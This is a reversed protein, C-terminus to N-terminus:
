ATKEIYKFYQGWLKGILSIESGEINEGLNLYQEVVEWDLALKSFYITDQYTWADAGETITYECSVFKYAGLKIDINASVLGNVEASAPTYAIDFVMDQAETTVTASDIVTCTTNGEADLGLFFDTNEELLLDTWGTLTTVTVKTGAANKYPIIFSTNYTWGGSAKTYAQSAVPTGAVSQTNSGLIYSLTDLRNLQLLTATLGPFYDATSSYTGVGCDMANLDFANELTHTGQFASIRGFAQSTLADFNAKVTTANSWDFDAIISSASEYDSYFTLTGGTQLEYKTLAM